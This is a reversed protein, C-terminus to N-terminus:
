RASYPWISLIVPVVNTADPALKVVEWFTKIVLPQINDTHTYFCIGVYMSIVLSKQNEVNAASYHQQNM